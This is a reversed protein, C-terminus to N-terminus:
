GLMLWCWGVVLPPTVIGILLGAWILEVTSIKGSGYVIANPPTSIPLCMAASSALAIPVALRSEGGTQQFVAITIPLLLNATATNSMLNSMVIAVYGFGIAMSVQAWGDLPLREVAWTALGTQDLAVGLALGGAILLLIDWPLKRIDDATLIGTATLATIPVLSVLATPLGHWPSTIWLGVTVTFVAVVNIQRHKPVPDTAVQTRLQADDDEIFGTKGLYAVILYLWALALLTAAPPVALMMWQAFDVPTSESLLGAAIANPPTGIVTGMGGLNAAMAVGLALARSFKDHSDRAAFLPTMMALVLTATATNSIFMSLVATVLMVGMLVMAPKKGFLALARAALWRDLGTKEASAALCFGGFFLWILPSGWPAIFIEWDDPGTAFVGNPRGLLAILLGIAVLSTAFAPIAESVWMGAAFLLVFLARAAAPDLGPYEPLFAGTAAVALCALSAAFTRAQSFRFIGLLRRAENRSGHNM